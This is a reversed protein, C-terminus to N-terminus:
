IMHVTKFSCKQDGNGPIFILLFFNSVGDIFKVEVRVNSKVTTNLLCQKNLVNSNNLMWSIWKTYIIMTINHISSKNLGGMM